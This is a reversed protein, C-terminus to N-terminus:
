TGCLPSAGAATTTIDFVSGAIGFISSFASLGQFIADPLTELQWLGVIPGLAGPTAITGTIAGVAGLDRGFCAATDGSHCAGNDLFTAAAGTVAATTGYALAGASAEAVSAGAAVASTIGAAEVVAGVGTAAAAVGTVIGVTQLPHHVVYSAATCVFSFIGCGLGLPDTGNIPDDYVYGFPSQTIGVLPDVSLFQATQPDYYRNVLYLLGTEPDYRDYGAHRPARRNRAGFHTPRFEMSAAGNSICTRGELQDDILSGIIPLASLPQWTPQNDRDATM